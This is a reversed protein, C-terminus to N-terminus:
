RDVKLFFSQGFTSYSKWPIAQISNNRKLWESFALREGSLDGMNFCYFDDFLIVSGSVVSDTLYSLVQKCSSYLDVDIHIIGAGLSSRNNLSEEYFGEVIQVANIEVDCNKELITLFEEKSTKFTGTKFYGDISSDTPPLGAFSDFAHFQFDKLGLYQAANIAACFTRGSHCGFEAYIQPISGDDGAIKVYNIAELIHRFKEDQDSTRYARFSQAFKPNKIYFWFDRALSVFLELFNIM